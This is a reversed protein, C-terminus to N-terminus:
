NPAIIIFIIFLTAIFMQMYINTYVFIKMDSLYIGLLSNKPKYPLHIKLKM